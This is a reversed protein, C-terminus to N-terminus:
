FMCGEVIGGARIDSKNKFKTNHTSTLTDSKSKRRKGNNSSHTSMLRRMDPRWITYTTLRRKLEEDDEENQEGAQNLGEENQLAESDLSQFQVRRSNDEPQDEDSEM